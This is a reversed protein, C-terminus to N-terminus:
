NPSRDSSQQLQEYRYTEFVEQATLLAKLKGAFYNASDHHANDQAERFFKNANRIEREFFEHM